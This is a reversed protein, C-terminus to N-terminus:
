AASLLPPHEQFYTKIREFEAAAEKGFRTSAAADGAGSAQELNRLIPVIAMMGCTASAGACSHAVRSTTALDKQGLATQIQGLQEDTQKLYLTVLENLNDAVGGSFENLRSM